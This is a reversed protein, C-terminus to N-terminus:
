RRSCKACPDAGSRRRSRRCYLIAGSHRNHRARRPAPDTALPGVDMIAPRSNGEGPVPSIRVPTTPGCGSVFVRGAGREVANGEVSRGSEMKSVKRRCISPLCRRSVSTKSTIRRDVHPVNPEPDGRQAVDADPLSLGPIDDRRGAATPGVPVCRETRGSGSEEVCLGVYSRNTGSTLSRYGGRFSPCRKTGAAEAVSSVHFEGDLAGHDLGDAGGASHRQDM